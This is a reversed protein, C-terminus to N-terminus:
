LGKEGVSELMVARSSYRLMEIESFTCLRWHSASNKFSSEVTYVTSGDKSAFNSVANGVSACTGGSQKM